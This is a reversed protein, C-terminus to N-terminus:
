REEMFEDEVDELLHAAGDEDEEEGEEEGEEEDEGSGAEHREGEQQEEEQGEEQWQGAPPEPQEEEGEEEEEAEEVGAGRELEACAAAGAGCPPPLLTAGACRWCGPDRARTSPSPPLALRRSCWPSRARTRAGILVPGASYSGGEFIYLGPQGQRLYEADWDEEGIAGGEEIGGLRAGQQMREALQAPSAARATRRRPPPPPLGDAAAPM